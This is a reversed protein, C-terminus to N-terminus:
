LGIKLMCLLQRINSSIVMYFVYKGLFSLMMHISDDESDDTDYSSGESSENPALIQMPRLPAGARKITKNRM